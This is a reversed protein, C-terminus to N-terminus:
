AANGSLTVFGEDFGFGGRFSSMKEYQYAFGTLPPSLPVRSVAVMPGFPSIHRTGAWNIGGGPWPRVEFSRYGPAIPRLGAM